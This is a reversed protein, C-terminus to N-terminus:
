DAPNSTVGQAALRAETWQDVLAITDMSIEHGLALTHWDVPLGLDRLRDRNTKAEEVPILEDGTGHIMLIPTAANAPHIAGALAEPHLLEGSLVIIGALPYPYQLATHLAMAGGQSFGGVLTRAPPIGTEREADLLGTLQTHSECLTEPDAEGSDAAAVDYWARGMRGGLAQLRRMPANPALYRLGLERSAALNKFLPTLDESSTGQGHLWLMAAEVNRRTHITLTEDSGHM